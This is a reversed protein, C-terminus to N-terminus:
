LLAFTPVAVARHEFIKPDIDGQLRILIEEELEVVFLWAMELHALGICPVCIPRMAYEQTSSRGYHADVQHEAERRPEVVVRLAISPSGIAIESPHMREVHNGFSIQAPM